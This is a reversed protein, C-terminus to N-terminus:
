LNKSLSENLNIMHKEIQSLGEKEEPLLNEEHNIMLANVFQVVDYNAKIIKQVAAKKGYNVPKFKKM